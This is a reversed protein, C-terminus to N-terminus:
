INECWFWVKQSLAHTAASIGPVLSVAIQLAKKKSM